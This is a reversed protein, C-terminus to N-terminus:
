FKQKEMRNGTRGSLNRSVTVVPLHILIFYKFIFESVLKSQIYQRSEISKLIKQIHMKEWIKAYLFRLEAYEMRFKEKKRLIEIFQEILIQKNTKYENYFRTLHYLGNIVNQFNCRMNLNQKQILKEKVLVKRYYFLTKPDKCLTQMSLKGTTAEGLKRSRGIRELLCYEQESLKVNANYEDFLALNRLKQNAVIVM